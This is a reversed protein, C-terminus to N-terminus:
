FQTPPTTSPAGGEASMDMFAGATMVASAVVGLWLGIGTDGAFVLGFTILFAAFSLVLHLQNHDFGLIRDPLSVNGFQQAAVGGGIVVGILACFIGLLGFADTEWGNVSFDGIATDVSYWDLFTSILLVAGGAILMITSPKMDNNDM